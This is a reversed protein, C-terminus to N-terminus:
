KFDALESSHQYRYQCLVAYFGADAAVNKVPLSLLFIRCCLRFNCPIINRRYKRIVM